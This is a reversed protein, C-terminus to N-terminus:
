LLAMGIVSGLIFFWPGAKAARPSVIFCVSGVIYCVFPLYTM